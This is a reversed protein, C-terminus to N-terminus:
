LPNLFYKRGMQLLWKGKLTQSTGLKGLQAKEQPIFVPTLFPTQVVPTLSPTQVVPTLHLM